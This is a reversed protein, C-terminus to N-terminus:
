NSGGGDLVYIGHSAHQLTTGQTDIDSLQMASKINSRTYQQLGDLFQVLEVDDAITFTTRTVVDLFEYMV